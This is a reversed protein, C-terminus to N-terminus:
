AAKRFDHSAVRSPHNRTQEQAKHFAWYAETDGSSHLSRLKLIAEASRLRWRAGTIDMRDRVLHRCAGEIVGTAIPFGEALYRDYRLMERYKVLYDACADVGKREVQCLDRLTASRRMGAAVDSAKGRLIQLAREGVWAEAEQCGPVFFCWTAKWLYELVHIFDLILTVEVGHREIAAHIDELQGEHGDVLMVWPRQGEPDRRRAEQFVEETVQEPTREVSAWVRKHRARVKPAEEKQGEVSIISEPTRVQREISYVAAVTAMRKRNRKEGQSLRTKLKRSEREAARKTGERLDEKRMVIGKGDESMVLPDRTEEPGRSGRHQYFAEFDQSVKAALEEAQRKPVQGGTTTEIARVAQDFSGRAVEFALRERLGPSYSDKPLNLEGDLPFLSGEEPARYGCRRVEVEGFITGLRRRCGGRVHSRVVGDAGRVGRERTEAAARVDLHGQLLRRMLETGERSILGEVEGHEMRLVAASELRDVILAFQERASAFEESGWSIIYAQKM